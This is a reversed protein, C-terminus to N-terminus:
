AQDRSIWIEGQETVNVLFEELPEPPPGSIVKGALDFKGNHCACWIMNEDSVYQVICALHPCTAALARYTDQKDKLVIVPVRGFQVIRFPSEWEDSIMGIKISSVNSEGLPPPILFRVVPYFISGLWGTAGIGLLRKLWSQRTLKDSPNM